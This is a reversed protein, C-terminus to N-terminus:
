AVAAVSVFVTCESGDEYSTQCGVVNVSLEILKGYEFSHM